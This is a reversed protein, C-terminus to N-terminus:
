VGTCRPVSIQNQVLSSHMWGSNYFSGGSYYVFFWRPSSYNGTTWQADVWCSMGVAYGNPFSGIVGSSTNPCHRLNSPGSYSYTESTYGYFGANSPTCAPTLASAPSGSAVLTASGLVVSLLTRTLLRRAWCPNRTM